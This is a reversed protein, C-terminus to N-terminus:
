WYHPKFGNDVSISSVIISHKISKQLSFIFTKRSAVNNAFAKNEARMVPLHQELECTGHLDIWWSEGGKNSM